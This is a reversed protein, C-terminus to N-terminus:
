WGIILETAFADNYFDLSSFFLRAVQAFLLMIAMAGALPIEKSLGKKLNYILFVLVIFFLTFIYFLLFNVPSFAQTFVLFFLIDGWGIQESTINVLRKEKLSFYVSVLFLQIVVFSINILTTTAWESFSSLISPVALLLFMLPFVLWSVAHYKFDQYIVICLMLLLLLTAFLQLTM